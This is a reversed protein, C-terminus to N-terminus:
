KTKLDQVESLIKTGTILGMAVGIFASSLGLMNSRYDPVKEIKVIGYKNVKM